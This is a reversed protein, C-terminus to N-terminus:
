IYLSLQDANRKMDDTRERFACYAIHDLGIHILCALLREKMREPPGGRKDWHLDMIEKLDIGQWRPFWSWWYLFLAHDYLPDGFFANGWDFVGTLKSNGILVNRNLLDNHVIGRNEPLRPVLQRLKIVGADFIRTERSFNELKERWGALRDRPGAVELLEGGWSRGSGEPRWIGVKQTSALDQKQLECLADLLQPLVVRMESENLEDLHKDGQVRESVAFYENETEGIEMIKPIPLSAMSLHGMAQDKEFDSRYSGFRIVRDRGDLSFAYARSWDGSALSVLNRARDGFHKKVFREAAQKHHEM